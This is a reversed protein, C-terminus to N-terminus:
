NTYCNFMVVIFNPTGKLFKFNFNSIITQYMVTRNFNHSSPKLLNIFIRSLGM